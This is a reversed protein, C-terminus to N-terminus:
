PDTLLGLDFGADQVRRHIMQLRVREAARQVLGPERRRLVPKLAEVKLFPSGLDIMAAALHVAPNRHPIRAPNRDGYVAQMVSRYPILAGWSFGHESLWMTLGLEYAFILQRKDRYDLVADFFARFAPSRIVDRGAVVFYTQLHHSFQISDSIGWFAYGRQAMEALVDALPRLPGYVSSNTLVVEDYADLDERALALKWMGFDYGVNPKRLVVDANAALAGHAEDTLPATSVVVLRDALPRLRQLYHLLYPKAEGRADYHAMAILRRVVL